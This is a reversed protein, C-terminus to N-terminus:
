IIRCTFTYRQKYWADSLSTITIGKNQSAHIFANNGLYIGVHEISGNRHTDFFVLDGPAPDTVRTGVSAQESATRPLKIGHLSFVYQVFGSCDFGTEPRAGGYRYRVGIFRRATDIIDQIDGRASISSRDSNIAQKKVAQPPLPAAPIQLIDGPHILTGKIHNIEQLKKVSTKYKVAIGWLSDGKKVVYSAAESFKPFMLGFSFLAGVVIPFVLRDRRFM